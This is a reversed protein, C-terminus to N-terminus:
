KSENLLTPAPSVRNLPVKVPKPLAPRPRETIGLRVSPLRLVAMPSLASDELVSPLLLTAVPLAASSELVVPPLLTAVPVSESLELVFAAKVDDGAGSCQKRLVVPLLLTAVPEPAICLVVVPLLLTALPGLAREAFVVPLLLTAAPTM